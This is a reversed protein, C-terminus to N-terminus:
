ILRPDTDCHWTQPLSSPRFFITHSKSNCKLHSTANTRHCSYWRSESEIQMRQTQDVNTIRFSYHIRVFEFEVNGAHNETHLRIAHNETHLSIQMCAVIGIHTILGIYMSISAVTENCAKLRWYRIGLISWQMKKVRMILHLAKTPRSTSWLAHITLLFSVFLKLKTQRWQGLFAIERRGVPKWNSWGLKDLALTLLSPPPGTITTTAWLLTSTTSSILILSRTTSTTSCCIYLMFITSGWRLTVDVDFSGTWDGNADPCSLMSLYLKQLKVIDSFMKCISTMLELAAIGRCRM